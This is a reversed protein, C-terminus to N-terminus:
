PEVPHVSVVTIGMTRLQAIIGHLHSEDLVDGYLLTGPPVDVIDMDCFAERDQESLRADFRIRYAKGM